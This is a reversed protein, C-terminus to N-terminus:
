PTSKEVGGDIMTRRPLGKPVSKQSIILRRSEAMLPVTVQGHCTAGQVKSRLYAFNSCISM